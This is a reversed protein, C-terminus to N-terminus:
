FSWTKNENEGQLNNKKEPTQLLVVICRFTLDHKEKFRVVGKIYIKWASVFLAEMPTTDIQRM